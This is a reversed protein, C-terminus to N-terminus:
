GPIALGRSEASLRWSSVDGLLADAATRARARLLSFDIPDQHVPIEPLAAAEEKPDIDDEDLAIGADRKVAAALQRLQRYTREGRQHIGEFDGIVRIGYTATALAPLAASAWITGEHLLQVRDLADVLPNALVPHADAVVAFLHYAAVALTLILLSFGVRELRLEMLHMRRASSQNYGRQSKLLNLLVSREPALNNTSLDASRLSQMRVMARTYWGTWTPEEGPFSAPRLGLTWLPLATRFREAVERAEVWRHHWHWYRGLAVNGVVCLILVIEIGVPLAKSSAHANMTMVSASGAIVALAAFFFNIVFASRFFQSCRNAVADAWGYPQALHAIPEVGTVTPNAAEVYEQALDDPSGPFIDSSRMRRTFLVSMLLSFPIAFNVSRAIEGYWRELGDRQEIAQPPRVLDDVLRNMGDAITASPLDDFAVIPGPTRKLGRWRLEIDKKGNADVLIIPLGIRAAEAIMEASGGRGRSLGRDWVALLIDAQSLVTLGAAEYARNEKHLGQEDSDAATKRRGPLELVARAQPLLEDFDQRAVPWRADVADTSFDNRYEARAFPLPVDLRYGLALAAKAALTDAGDALASVLTLVPERTAFLPAHGQAAQLQNQHALAAADKIAELAVRIDREVKGLTEQDLQPLPRGAADKIQWQKLRHGVIGVTLAFHPKPPHTLPGAPPQVAVPAVPQGNARGAHGDVATM